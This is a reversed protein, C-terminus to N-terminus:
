RVGVSILKNTLNRHGNERFAVGNFDGTNVVGNGEGNVRYYNSVTDGQWNNPVKWATPGILGSMMLGVQMWVNAGITLQYPYATSAGGHGTWSGHVSGSVNLAGGSVLAGVTLYTENDRSFWDAAGDSHRVYLVEKFPLNLLSRSYGNSGFPISNTGATLLNYANDTTYWMTWGGGGTTMDCYVDLPSHGDLQIRYVGDGTAGRYHRETDTPHRYEKCSRALEGDAWTRHGGQDVLSIGTEPTPASDSAVQLGRMSRKFEYTPQAMVGTSLTSFLLACVPLVRKNM